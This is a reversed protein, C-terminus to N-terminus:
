PTIASPARVRAGPRRVRVELPLAAAAGDPFTPQFALLYRTRLEEEIEGYAGALAEGSAIFFSRGGTADALRTLNRRAGLDLTHVDVGIAYITIGLRRALELTADFGFESERDWGDSILVV